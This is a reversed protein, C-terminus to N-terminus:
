DRWDVSEEKVNEYNEVTAYNKERTETKHGGRM